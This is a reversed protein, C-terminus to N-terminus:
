SHVDERPQDEARNGAVNGPEEDLTILAIAHDPVDHEADDAGENAPEEGAQEETDVVRDLTGEVDARDHDGDDARDDRDDHEVQDRAPGPCAAAGPRKKIGLAPVFPHHGGAAPETV